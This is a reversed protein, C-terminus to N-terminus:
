WIMYERNIVHCTRRYLMHSLITRERTQCKYIRSTKRICLSTCFFNHIHTPFSFLICLVQNLFSKRKYLHLPLIILTDFSLSKLLNNRQYFQQIWYQFSWKWSVGNGKWNCTAKTWVIKKISSVLIYFMHFCLNCFDGPKMIKTWTASFMEASTVQHCTAASLSMRRSGSRCMGGGTLDACAHCRDAGWLQHLASWHM